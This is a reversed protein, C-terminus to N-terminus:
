RLHLCKHRSIECLSLRSIDLNYIIGRSGRSQVPSIGLAVSSHHFALIIAMVTKSFGILRTYIFFRRQLVTSERTSIINKSHKTEPFISSFANSTTRRHVFLFSELYTLLMNERKLIIITATSLNLLRGCCYYNSKVLGPISGKLYLLVTPM